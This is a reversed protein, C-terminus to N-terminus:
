NLQKKKRLLFYALAGLSLLLVGGGVSLGIILPKQNDNTTVTPKDEDPDVYGDTPSGNYERKYLNFNTIYFCGDYGLYNFVMSLVIINKDSGSSYNINVTQKYYDVGGITVVPLDAAKINNEDVGVKTWGPDIAGQNRFGNATEHCESGSPVNTNPICLDKQYYVDYSIRTCKEMESLWDNAKAKNTESYGLKIESWAMDDQSKCKVEMSGNLFTSQKLSYLTARYTSGYDYMFGLTQKGDFNNVYDSVYDFKLLRQLFAMSSDITTGDQYTATAKLSINSGRLYYKMELDLYYNSTEEDYLMTKYFSSKVYLDVKAVEKTSQVHVTVRYIPTVDSDVVAPGDSDFNKVYPDVFFVKDEFKAFGEGYEFLLAYNHLAIVEKDSKNEGLYLLRYGDYDSYYGTKSSPDIGALMWFQAGAGGLKYIKNLWASYIYERNKGGASSIGFEELVAPKNAKQASDLHDKIWVEGWREADESAGWSESYLHYTGYDINPLALIADFDAGESGDYMTKGLTKYADSAKHNFGGEDGLAVLHNTDITKIYTSMENAWSTVISPDKDPNRPENMLEWSMITDDDKYAKNNLHNVRTLLDKIYQKYVKKCYTDTYFKSADPTYKNDYINIGNANQDAWKVYEKIGGFDAWYNTFVIVLKIGYSAAKNITYDLREFCNTFEQSAGEPLDYKNPGSQMYAKNAMADSDGEFGDMFGWMRIVSFSAESASKLVDDIMSTTKYHLYYNNTGVFRFPSGNLTFGDGDAKVFSSTTNANHRTPTTARSVNNTGNPSLSLALLLSMLTVTIAKM